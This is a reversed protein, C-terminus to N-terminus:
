LSQGIRSSLKQTKRMFNEVNIPVKMPLSRKSRREGFLQMCRHDNRGFHVKKMLEERIAMEFYAQAKSGCKKAVKPKICELMYSISICQVDEQSYSGSIAERIVPIVIMQACREIESRFYPQANHMCHLVGRKEEDSGCLENVRDTLEQMAQTVDSDDIFCEAATNNMCELLSRSFRCIEDIDTTNNILEDFQQTCSLIQDASCQPPDASVLGLFAIFLQACILFKM